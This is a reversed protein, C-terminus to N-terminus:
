TKRALSQDVIKLVDQKEVVRRAFKDRKEKILNVIEQWNQLKKSERLFDEQRLEYVEGTKSVCQCSTMYRHDDVEIFADEDGLVGKDNVIVLDLVQTKSKVVMKNSNEGAASSQKILYDGRSPRQKSRENLMHELQATDADADKNLM